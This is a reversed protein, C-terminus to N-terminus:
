STPIVFNPQKVGLLKFIVNSVKMVSEHVEENEVEDLEEEEQEAEEEPDIRVALFDVEDEDCSDDCSDLSYEDDFDDGLM